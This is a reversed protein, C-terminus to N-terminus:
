RVKCRFHIIGGQGPELPKDIEWRLVLSGGANAETFFAADLSVQASDPVYELRTTLNDIITVNGITSCGVNDFRITFDVIDGPRATDTSALKIIRLKAKTPTDVTYIEEVSQDAIAVEARQEDIVVQVAQDHSWTIAADHSEALRAEESQKYIGFKVVQLNEYPLLTDQLARAKLTQALIGNGQPTLYATARGLGNQKLPMDNQLSTAPIVVEDRRALQVPLEVGRPGAIEENENLNTITRVAAFRPAYICVKNSPEVLRRGDLTDFHAVTDEQELGEVSWDGGVTVPIAQDGGDCLYEDPPWPCGIGPPRWPGTCANCSDCSAPCGQCPGHVSQIPRPPCCGCQAVPVIPLPQAEPDNLQELPTEAVAQRLAGLEGHQAVASRVLSHPNASSTPNAAAPRPVSNAPAMALPPAPVQAPRQDQALQHRPASCSCLILTSLAIVTWRWWRPWAWLNDDLSNVTTSQAGEGRGEGLHLPLATRGDRRASKVPTM